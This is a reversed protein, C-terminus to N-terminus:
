RCSGTYISSEQCAEWEQLLVAVNQKYMRNIHLLLYTKLSENSVMWAEIPKIITSFVTNSAPLSVCMEGVKNDLSANQSLAISTNRAARTVSNLYRHTLNSFSLFFQPHQSKTQKFLIIRIRSDSFSSHDERKNALSCVASSGAVCMDKGSRAMVSPAALLILVFLICFPGTM